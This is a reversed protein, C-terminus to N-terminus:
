GVGQGRRAPFRHRDWHRIVAEAVEAVSRGASAVEVDSAARYRPLRRDLVEAVEDLTGAATLAPRDALGQRSHALRRALTEADATLWVVLGFARLARCNDDRLVAGGGTALIGGGLGPTAALRRLTAAEHERFAPEGEAEFIARISRGLDRELEADADAFPAGTRDAAIRGVTSKGTGRYGVLVLGTGRPPGGGEGAIM